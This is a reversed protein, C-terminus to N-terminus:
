HGRKKVKDADYFFVLERPVSEKCVYAGRKNKPSCKHDIFVSVHVVGHHLLPDPLVTVEVKVVHQHAHQSQESHGRKFAPWLSDCGSTRM